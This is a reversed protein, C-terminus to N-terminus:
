NMKFVLPSPLNAKYMEILHAAQKNIVYELSEPFFHLYFFLLLIRHLAKSQHGSSCANLKVIILELMPISFVTLGDRAVGVVM